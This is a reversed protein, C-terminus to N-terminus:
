VHYPPSSAMLRPDPLPFCSVESHTWPLIGGWSLRCRSGHWPPIPPPPHTGSGAHISLKRPPLCCPSQPISPPQSLLIGRACWWVVFMQCPFQLPQTSPSSSSSSLLPARTHKRSPCTSMPGGLLVVILPTLAQYQRSPKLPPRPLTSQLFESAHRAHSPQKEMDAAGEGSRTSPYCWRPLYCAHAVVRARRLRADALNMTTSGSPLKIPSASLSRSPLYM